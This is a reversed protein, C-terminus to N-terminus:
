HDELRSGDDPESVPPGAPRVARRAAGVADQHKSALLHLRAISASHREDNRMWDMLAINYGFAAVTVIM